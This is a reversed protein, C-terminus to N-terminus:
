FRTMESMWALGLLGVGGAELEWGRERLDARRARALVVGLVVLASGLAMAAVALSRGPSATAASGPVLVWALAIVCGLAMAHVPWAARGLRRAATAVGAARDRELDAIGNGLALGAGALIGIPVLPLLAAPVTGTVGIWAHVPVLPLAIALPLWSWATRSLRLDYAYGLAVGAAAVAATGAGSLASLGVGAVLGAVAVLGAELPRVVGRPIPKGPKRGSDIGADVLDNLAGISAQLALMSAGLRLAVPVGGGALTAM